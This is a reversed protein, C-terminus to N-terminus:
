QWFFYFFATFVLDALVVLFISKVVANTTSRGVGEPGGTVNFGEFCGVHVIITGFGVAKVMSSVIDRMLLIEATRQLYVSMTMDLSYYTFVGGALIGSAVAVITLCPMMTMMAVYKPVLVFEIPDLAMTRLADIEETVVMTGIEASISSGSRGIVVIAAMLPGLERTMSTGVLNVVVEMAGFKRLEAGGQLAMILGTAGAILCVVPLAGVGIVAMQQLTMKWRLKSGTFPNIRWSAILGRWFQITLGGVYEVKEVSSYGISELFNMGPGNSM